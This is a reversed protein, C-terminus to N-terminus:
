ILQPNIIEMILHEKKEPIIHKNDRLIVNHLAEHILTNTLINKEDNNFNKFSNLLIIFGDTEAWHKNIDDYFFQINDLLKLSKDYNISFNTSRLIFKSASYIKSIKQKKKEKQFFRKAKKKAQKLIIRSIM